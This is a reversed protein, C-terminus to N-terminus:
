RNDIIIITRCSINQTMGINSSSISLSITPISPGVQSLVVSDTVRCSSHLPDDSKLFTQSTDHGVLTLSEEPFDTLSLPMYISTPLVSSEEDFSDTVETMTQLIDETGLVAPNTIVMSEQSTDMLISELEYIFTTFTSSPSNLVDAAMHLYSTLLHDTESIKYNKSAMNEPSMFSSYKSTTTPIISSVLDSLGDTIMLYSPLLNDTEKTIITTSEIQIDVLPFSESPSISSTVNSTNMQGYVVAILGCHM